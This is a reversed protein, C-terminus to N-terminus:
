RCLKNRLWTSFNKEILYYCVLAALVSLMFSSIVGVVNTLAGLNLKFLIKGIIAIVFKHILYFSFSFNGFAILMPPFSIDSLTVIGLAATFVGLGIAWMDSILYSCCIFVGALAFVSALETGKNNRLKLKGLINNDKLDSIILGAIFAIQYKYTWIVFVPNTIKHCNKVAYCIAIICSYSLITKVNRHKTHRFVMFIAWFIIYQYVELILTWGVSLIPFLKGDGSYYPIFMLSQILNSFSYAKGGNIGPSVLSAVYILITLFWYLPVLRAIKKRFYYNTSKKVGEYLFYGTFTFFIVLSFNSYNSRWGGWNEPLHYM